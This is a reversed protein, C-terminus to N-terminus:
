ELLENHLPEELQVKSERIVNLYKGTRLLMDKFKELFKPV